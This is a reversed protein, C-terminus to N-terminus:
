YLLVQQVTAVAPIEIDINGPQSDELGIGASRIDTGSAIPIGPTGLSETGDAWAIAGLLLTIVGLFLSKFMGKERGGISVAVVSSVRM